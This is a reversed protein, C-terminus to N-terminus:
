EREREREREREQVCVCLSVCVIEREREREREKESDRDCALWLLSLIIKPEYDDFLNFPFFKRSQSKHNFNIHYNGLHVFTRGIQKPKKHNKPVFMLACMFACVCEIERERKKCV